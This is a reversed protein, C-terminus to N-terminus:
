QGAYRELWGVIRVSQDLLAPWGRVGHRESPYVALAADARGHEAVARYFEIAQGAPCCEDDECGILLTPVRVDAARGVPGRATGPPGVFFEDFGPIASVYHQSWWDTAPSIAVAASFVDGSAALCCAMFGGYSHGIVSIRAPDAIGREIMARAASRYDGTDAGGMAHRIANVFAPGSGLSGRGNPNLVAFGRGVLLSVPTHGVIDWNNRWAWVPGGHVNVVLPYPPRGASPTILLGSIPMGDESTWGVTTLEGKRESLWRAGASPAAPFLAPREKGGKVGVIRLEPQTDWDEYAVLLGGDGAPSGSPMPMGCTGASRWTQTWSLTALDLNGGVTDSGRMGLYAATTDDRFRLDTIEWDGIGARRIMRSGLDLTVPVGAIMGRDSALGEIWVATQGDPSTALRGAQLEPRYFEEYGGTATEVLVLRARYWDPPEAMDSALALYARPGAWAAEWIWLDAPAADRRLEAGPDETFVPQRDNGFTARVAPMWEAGPQRSVAGLEPRRERGWALLRDAGGCWVFGDLGHAATGASDRVEGSALDLYRLGSDTLFALWRGSSSWAPRYGDAIQAVEGSERHLTYVRSWPPQDLSNLGTGTFAVMSRDPSLVPDAVASCAGFRDAHASLYFEEVEAWLPTLRVDRQVATPVIPRIM